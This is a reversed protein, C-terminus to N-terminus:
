LSDDNPSALIVLKSYNCSEGELGSKFSFWDLTRLTVLALNKRLRQIIKTSQIGETSRCQLPCTEFVIKSYGSLLVSIRHSPFRDNNHKEVFRVPTLSTVAVRVGVDPKASLAARAAAYSAM